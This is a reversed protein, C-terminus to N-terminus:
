RGCDVLDGSTCADLSGTLNGVPLSDEGFVTDVPSGNRSAETISSVTGHNILKPAEYFKKM